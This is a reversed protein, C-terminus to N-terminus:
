YPAEICGEFSLRGAARLITEWPRQSAVVKAAIDADPEPLDGINMRPFNTTWYTRAAQFWAQEVHAKEEASLMDYDESSLADKPFRPTQPRSVIAGDPSPGEGWWWFMGLSGPVDVLDVCIQSHEANSAISSAATQRSSVVAAPAQALLSAQLKMQALQERTEDLMKQLALTQASPPPPAAAM